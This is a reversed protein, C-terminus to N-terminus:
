QVCRSESSEDVDALKNSLHTMTFYLDKIDCKERITSSLANGIRQLFRQMNKEKSYYRGSRWLLCCIRVITPIAKAMDVLSEGVCLAELHEEAVELYKCSWQSEECISEVEKISDLLEQM